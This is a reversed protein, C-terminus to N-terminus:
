DKKIKIYYEQNNIKLNNYLSISNGFIPIIQTYYHKIIQYKKQFNNIKNIRFEIKNKMNNSYQFYNNFLLYIKDIYYTCFIKTMRLIRIVINTSKYIPHQYYNIFDKLELDIDHYNSLNLYKLRNFVNLKLCCYPYDYYYYLNQFNFIKTIYDYTLLHDPHNGIGLPCFIKQFNYKNKIKTLVQILEIHININANSIYYRFLDDYLNLYIMKIRINKNRKKLEIIAKQDEQKRKQTDAYYKYDDFFKIKTFEKTFITCIIVNGKYKLLFNSMSFIADDLHPSIICIM